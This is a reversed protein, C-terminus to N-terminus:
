KLMIFKKPIEEYKGDDGVIGTYCINPTFLGGKEVKKYVNNGPKSAGSIDFMIHDMKENTEYGTIRGFMLQVHVPVDSIKGGDLNTTYKPKNAMFLTFRYRDALSLANGEEDERIYEVILIFTSPNKKNKFNYLSLCNFIVKLHSDDDIKRKIRDLVKWHMEKDESKVLVEDNITPSHLIIDEKGKQNPQEM